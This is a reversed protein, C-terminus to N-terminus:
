QAIEEALNGAVLKEVIQETQEPVIESYKPDTGREKIEAIRAQVATEIQEEITILRPLNFDEDIYQDGVFMRVRVVNRQEIEQEITVAPTGDENNMPEGEANLIPKEVDVLKDVTEVDEGHIGLVAYQKGEEM